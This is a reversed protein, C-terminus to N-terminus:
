PKDGANLTAQCHGDTPDMGSITVDRWANRPASAEPVEIRLYNSSIGTVPSEKEVIIRHSTGVLNRVFKEHCRDLAARLCVSRVNKEKEDIQGARDAAATMPRKSFRFVHGYSFGIKETIELTERFNKESEGPFGVIFDGGMGADPFRKRFDILTEIFSNTDSSPRNMAALVEPSLSQVSLHLHRCFRPNAGILDAIGRSLDRPDLSSLRVRFDGTMVSLREILETLGQGPGSQFQGIHTGTLVIEKYGAEIAQKCVAMIEEISASRSAGRLFPVICYACRFDCGEQIKISFRTRGQADIFIPSDSFLRLPEHPAAPEGCFVGESHDRLIDPIENKRTNDVVWRVNRERKIASTKQQCLCGTVCIDLTPSHKSLQRIMRRTKAETMSTVSCTNVVVIEAEEIRDVLRHGQNMLRFGLATMEQQNTRCGISRLAIAKTLFEESIRRAANIGIRSHM